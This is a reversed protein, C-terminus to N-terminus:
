KSASATKANHKRLYLNLSGISLKSKLQVMVRADDDTIWIEAKGNESFLGKTKFTPQLVVTKFSGAPTQIVERRVVKIRVPNADPNFYRSFSYTAGVELPITRVFYLFSGDDLPNAVTPQEPKDNQQYMGREPFMEYHRKPKYNGEEIDQHFRRSTLTTVDFWSEYKDNVKYFPVSGGVLFMTHWSSKGRVDTIDLVEMSASGVKLAGFKVDYELKEGVFFPVKMADTSVRAGATSPAFSDVVQASLATAPVSLALTASLAFRRLAPLTPLNRAALAMFAPALLRSGNLVQEAVAHHANARCAGTSAVM